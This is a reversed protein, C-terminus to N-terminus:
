RRPRGGRPFDRRSRWLIVALVPYGVAVVRKTLRIIRAYLPSDDAFFVGTTTPNTLSRFRLAFIVEVVLAATLFLSFAVARGDQEADFEDRDRVLLVGLLAIAAVDHSIGYRMKWSRTVYVLYMEIAGRALFHGYHLGLLRRSAPGATSRHWWMGPLVVFANIALNLWLVKSWHIPGGISPRRNQNWGFALSGATTLLAVGIHAHGPAADLEYPGDSM